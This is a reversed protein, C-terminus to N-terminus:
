GFTLKAHAALAALHAEKGQRRLSRLQEIM